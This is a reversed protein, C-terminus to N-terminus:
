IPSNTQHHKGMDFSYQYDVCGILVPRIEGSSDIKMAKSLDEPEIAIGYEVDFSGGPFLIRRDIYGARKELADCIQNRTKYPNPLLKDDGFFEGVKAVASVNIAPSHGVNVFHVRIWSHARHQEDITFAAGPSAEVDLWPRQSAELSRSLIQAQALSAVAQDKAALALTHTDESGGRMEKLQDRMATLQGHYIVLAVIGVLVLAIQGGFNLKELWHLERAIKRTEAPNGASEQYPTTGLNGQQPPVRLHPPATDPNESSADPHESPHNGSDNDPM